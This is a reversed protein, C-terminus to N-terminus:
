DFPFSPVQGRPMAAVQDELEERLLRETETEDAMPPKKGVVRNFLEKYRDMDIDKLKIKV